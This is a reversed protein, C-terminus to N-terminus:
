TEPVFGFETQRDQLAPEVGPYSLKERRLRTLNKKNQKWVIPELKFFDSLVMVYVQMDHTGTLQKPVPLTFYRVDDLFSYDPIYESNIMCYFPHNNKKFVLIPLRDDPCEGVTQQWWQFIICGDNRILQEMTWGEVWKCEVCFPFTPDATVLDGAANWDGENRTNFAGSGPTRVFDTGWWQGFEKAAAREGRGGKDKSNKRKTAM